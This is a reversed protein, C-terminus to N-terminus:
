NTGEQATWVVGTGEYFTDCILMGGPTAQDDTITYGGVLISNQNIQISGEHWPKSWERVWIIGDDDVELHDGSNLGQGGQLVVWNQRIAM